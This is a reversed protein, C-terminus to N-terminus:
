NVHLRANILRGSLAAAVAASSLLTKRRDSAPRMFTELAANTLERNWKRDILAPSWFDRIQPFERALRSRASAFDILLEPSALM